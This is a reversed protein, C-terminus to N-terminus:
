PKRRLKEALVLQLIESALDDEGQKLAEAGLERLSQLLRQVSDGVSIGNNRLIRFQNEIETDPNSYAAFNHMSINFHQDGGRESADKAEKLGLGTLMRIAKIVEVRQTQAAVSEILMTFSGNSM